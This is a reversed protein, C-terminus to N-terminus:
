TQANANKMEPIMAIRMGSVRPSSSVHVVTTGGFPAPTTAYGANDRPTNGFAGCPVRCMGIFKRLAM